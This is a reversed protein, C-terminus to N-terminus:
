ATCEAWRYLGLVERREAFIEEISKGFVPHVLGPALEVMPKLSFIRECALPHPVVLDPTVVVLDAYFLIDIDIVRPGWRPGPRRGLAREVGKVAELLETPFCLTRVRAATNLFDAQDAGGAPESEVFSAVEEVWVDERRDLMRIARELNGRKDGENTGLGLYATVPEM